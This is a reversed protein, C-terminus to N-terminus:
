GDRHEPERGARDASGHREADPHLVLAGDDRRERRPIDDTGDDAASEDTLFSHYIIKEYEILQKRCIYSYNTHFGVSLKL